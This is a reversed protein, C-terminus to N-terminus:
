CAAIMGVNDVICYFMYQILKWNIYLVNNEFYICKKGWARCFSSFFTFFKTFNKIKWTTALHNNRFGAVVWRMCFQVAGVQNTKTQGLCKLIKSFRFMFALSSSSTCSSPSTSSQRRGLIKFFTVRCRKIKWWYGNANSM